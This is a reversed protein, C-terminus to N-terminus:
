EYEGRLVEPRLPISRGGLRLMGGIRGEFWVEADGVRAGVREGQRLLSAPKPEDTTLVHLFLDEGHAEPPLVEVRWREALPTLVTQPPDFTEGRYTYGEVSRIVAKQPLLTQVTLTGRGRTVVFGSGTIAPQNFSHLLWTKEYEPRTSRVRDFIVFTHPRLFLIQRVWLQLKSPAYAKTGDGAVYLFEPRSVYAVIDGREFSERKALWQTLDGVPWEWHHSQGGDNAYRNRGGDRMRPWREDPQYVLICNHAITRILWNVSHNSLYDHYEGSETALPEYRFIEFNGVELHQHGNWYDGCEFRFWTADDTWDSRAYVKGIGAALHALPFTSLDLPPEPEEEFLFDMLRAEFNSGRRRKAMVARALPSGRYYQALVTRTHRPYERHG